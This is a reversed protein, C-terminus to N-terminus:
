DTGANLEELIDKPLVDLLDRIARKTEADPPSEESPQRNSVRNVDM